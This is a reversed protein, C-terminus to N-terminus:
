INTVSGTINGTPKKALEIDLVVTTDTIATVIVSLNSYYIPDLKATLNYTGATVSLSYFGTSNTMASINTNTFVTAESLGAKTVSDLVTGNIYGQSTVNLTVSQSTSWQKGIDMGRVNIVYTGASLSSTNLTATVNEWFGNVANYQGDVPNMPMGRSLGPDTGIYYEAGGVKSALGTTDNVRSTINVVAGKTVTLNRQGNLYVIDTFGPGQPTYGNQYRNINHDTVNDFYEDGGGHCGSCSGFSVMSTGTLDPAGFQSAIAPNTHCDMCSYNAPIRMSINHLDSATDVIHCQNCTGSSTHPFNIQVPSGYNPNSPKHCNNCAQNYPMADASTAFGFVPAPSQNVTPKILSANTGYHGVSANVSYAFNNVSNNHCNSCYAATSINVGNQKHNNIIPASFNGQTHCDTCTKTPTTWGPSNMNSIDYHCTSCDSNTLNDQGGTTNVNNHRTFSLANIAPFGNQPTNHCNMCENPDSLTVSANHFDVLGLSSVNSDKHCLDCQSTLTETHPRKISTSINVPSGWSANNSYTANNHCTICNSTNIPGFHGYPSTSRNTVDKLYHTIASTTGNTGINSLYMGSNDHCTNCTANATIVEKGVQNHEAVLPASFNGSGTHCYTCTKAPDTTFSYTNMNTDNALAHCNECTSNKHVGSAFVGADVEKPAMTRNTTHCDLCNV